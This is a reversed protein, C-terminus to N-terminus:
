NYSKPFCETPRHASKDTCFRKRLLELQGQLAMGLVSQSEREVYVQLTICLPECVTIPFNHDDIFMVDTHLVQEKREMILDNDVIARETTKKTLKGHIYGPPYGFFEQARHIDETTLSPLHTINGDWVLHIVEQYSPYGAGQILEYVM